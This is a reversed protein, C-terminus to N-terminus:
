NIGANNMLFKQTLPCVTLSHYEMVRFHKMITQKNTQKKVFLAQQQQTAEATDKQAVGYM